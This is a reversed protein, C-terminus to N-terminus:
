TMRTGLHASVAEYLDHISYPKQLFGAAEEGKGDHISDHRTYGSSLIVPITPDIQHMQQLAEIGDMHPMTIDMLVLDLHVDQKRFQNVAQRGDRALLVKLGMSELMESVSVAVIEEDEVLLVTGQLRTQATRAKREPAVCPQASARFYVKFSTGRGPESEVKLGAHHGRLIGLVASLGLGRGTAKTTFFPDFIRAQVEASMGCGTDIIELAVFEGPELAQGDGDKVLGDPVLQLARTSLRISGEQEGLAESANIVLNLILQQIQPADVEIPPLSPALDVFLTVKEPLRPKLLDYMDQIIQNLSHPQVVFRGQGSYALLQRTLDTARQLVHEMSDLYFTLPSGKDLKLQTLNLFGHLAALLNNFDHAIGGSLVGLSELKQAHLVQRELSLRLNESRKWETIDEFLTAIQGQVPSFAHVLFQRQGGPGAMEFSTIGERGEAQLLEDGHERFGPGFLTFSDGGLVVKRDLGFMALGNPNADLLTLAPQAGSEPRAVRHIALGEKMSGYLSRYHQESERLARASEQIERLSLARFVFVLLLTLGLSGLGVLGTRFLLPRLSYSIRLQGIVQGADHISRLHRASPAGPVRGIRAIVEGDSTVVEVMEARDEALGRELLETLRLEEFRWMLPNAGILRSVERARLETRAEVVGRMYQYSGLFFIAPTLVAILGAISWIIPRSFPQATSDRM